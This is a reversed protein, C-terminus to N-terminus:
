ANDFDVGKSSSMEGTLVIVGSHFKFIATPPSRANVGTFSPLCDAFSIFSTKTMHDINNFNFM